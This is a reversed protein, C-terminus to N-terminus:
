VAFARQTITRGTKTYTDTKADFVVEDVLREDQLATAEAATVVVTPLRTDIAVPPAEKGSTVLAEGTRVERRRALKEPTDSLAVKAARRKLFSVIMAQVDAIDDGPLLPVTVTDVGVLAGANDRVEYECALAGKYGGWKLARAEAM